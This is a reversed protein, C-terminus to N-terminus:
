DAYKHLQTPKDVMTPHESSNRVSLSHTIDSFQILFYQIHSFNTHLMIENLLLFLLSVLWGVVKILCETAYIQRVNQQQQTFHGLSKNDHM